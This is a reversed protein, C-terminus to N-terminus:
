KKRRGGRVFPRGCGQYGGDAIPVKVYAADPFVKRFGEEIFTAVRLSTNSGKFSDPSIVIKM